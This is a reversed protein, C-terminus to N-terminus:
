SSRRKKTSSLEDLREFEQESLESLDLPARQIKALPGRAIALAARAEKVSHVVFVLAGFRRWIAHVKKQEDTAEEGPCKVELCLWAAIAGVGISEHAVSIRLMAVLDPSGVGLGYPVKFEKGQDNFYTALGVSNKLLLLDPEAGMDAEIDRQIKKELESRPATM